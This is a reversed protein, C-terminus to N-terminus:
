RPRDKSIRKLSKNSPNLNTGVSQQGCEFSAGHGSEAGDIVDHDSNMVQLLARRTQGPEAERQRGPRLMRLPHAGRVPQDLESVLAKDLQDFHVSGLGEGGMVRGGAEKAEARM